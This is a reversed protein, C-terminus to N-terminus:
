AREFHARDDLAARHDSREGVAYEAAGGGFVDDIGLAAFDDDLLARQEVFRHDRRELLNAELAHLDARRQDARRALADTGFAVSAVQRAARRDIDALGDADDGGLRDALRAGLQRHPGEVDAAR